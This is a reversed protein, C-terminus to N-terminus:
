LQEPRYFASCNESPEKNRSPSNFPNVRNKELTTKNQCIRSGRAWVSETSSNRRVEARNNGISIMVGCGHFINLSNSIHPVNHEQPKGKALYSSNWFFSTVTCQLVANEKGIITKGRQM